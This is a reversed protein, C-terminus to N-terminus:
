IHKLQEGKKPNQPKMPHVWPSERSEKKTGITKYTKQCHFLNKNHKDWFFFVAHSWTLSIIHLMLKFIFSTYLYSVNRQIIYYSGSALQPCCTSWIRSDKQQAKTRKFQLSHWWKQKTPMIQSLCTTLTLGNNLVQHDRHFTCRKLCRLRM